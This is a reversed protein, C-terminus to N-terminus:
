GAARKLHNLQVFGGQGSLTKIYAWNGQTAYVIVHQKNTLTTVRAARTSNKKYVRVGNARAYYIQNLKAAGYSKLFGKYMYGQQGNATRVYCFAEKTKNLYFVSQGKRISTIVGYASSPGRRVRAGDATVKLIRVVSNSSAATAGVPAMLLSAALIICMTLRLFKRYM